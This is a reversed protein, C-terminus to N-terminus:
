PNWNQFELQPVPISSSRSPLSSEHKWRWERPTNWDWDKRPVLVATLMCFHRVHFPRSLVFPLGATGLFMFQMCKAMLKWLHLNQGIGRAMNINTFVSAPPSVQHYKYMYATRGQIRTRMKKHSPQHHSHSEKAINRMHTRKSLPLCQHLRASMPRLFSQEM